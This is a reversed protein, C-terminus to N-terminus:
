LKNIEIKRRGLHLSKNYKLGYTRSMIHIQQPTTILIKALQNATLKTDWKLIRMYTKRFHKNNQLM